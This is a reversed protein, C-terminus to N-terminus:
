PERGSGKCHPCTILHNVLSPTDEGWAEPCDQYEATGEGGCCQCASEADFPEDDYHVDVQAGCEGCLYETGWSQDTAVTPTTRNCRYCHETM